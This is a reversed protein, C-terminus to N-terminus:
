PAETSPVLLPFDSIIQQVWISTRPALTQLQPQSDPHLIWCSVFEAFYERSTTQSYDGLLTVLAPAEALYDTEFAADYLWNARYAVYHAFEHITTSPNSTDLSITHAQYDTVGATEHRSIENDARIVPPLTFNICWGQAIFDTRWSDPILNWGIILSNRGRYTEASWNQNELYPCDSAYSPLQVTGSALTAILTDYEAQTMGSEPDNDPDALGCIVAAARADLYPQTAPHDATTPFPLSYISAPYPYIGYAPLITRWIVSRPISADSRLLELEFNTLVKHEVLNDLQSTELHFCRAIDYAVTTGKVTDPIIFEAYIGVIAVFSAFGITVGALCIIIFLSLSKLIQRFTRKM